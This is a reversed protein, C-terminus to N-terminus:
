SLNSSSVPRLFHVYQHRFLPAFIVLYSVSQSLGLRWCMIIWYLDVHSIARLKTTQPCCGVPWRNGIKMTRWHAGNECEPSRDWVQLHSHHSCAIKYSYEGRQPWFRVCEQDYVYRGLVCQRLMALRACLHLM